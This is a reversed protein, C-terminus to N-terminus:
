LAGGIEISTFEEFATPFWKTLEVRLMEAVQRMQPHAKPSLRLKLFHRWERANCTMGIEAKLSNPLVSRAIQPSVDAKRMQQYVDETALIGIQWLARQSPLDAGNFPECRPEENLGLPYIFTLEGGFRDNSYDCYRTSEQSFSAIRHRVLEHTVGRDTIIKFGASVHELTSEHGNALIMKVFSIASSEDTGTGVCDECLPFQPECAHFYERTGSGNCTECVKVKHSSQYCIRGMQEVTRVPEATAHVLKVSQEVIRM